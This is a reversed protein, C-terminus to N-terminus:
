GVWNIHNKNQILWFDHTISVKVKERNVLTVDPKAGIM